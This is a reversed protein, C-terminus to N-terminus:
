RQVGRLDKGGKDRARVNAHLAEPTIVTSTEHKLKKTSLTIIPDQSGGRADRDNVDSIADYGAKQMARTFNVWSSGMATDFTAQRVFNAATKYNKRSEKGKALSKVQRKWYRQGKFQTTQTMRGAAYMDTALRQPDQKALKQLQQLVARDSAVKIDRKVKYSHIYPKKGDYLVQKMGMNKAYYKNDYDTYSFYQRRNSQRSDVKDTGMVRQFKTGAKITRDRSNIQDKQKRVGWRMGKVGYHRLEDNM